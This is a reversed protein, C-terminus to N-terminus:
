NGRFCELPNVRINIREDSGDIPRGFCKHQGFNKVCMKLSKALKSM